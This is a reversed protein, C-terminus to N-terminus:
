EFPIIIEISFIYLESDIPECSIQTEGNYHSVAEKISLLGFGHNKKDSKTTSIVNNDSITLKQCHNSESIIFYNDTRAFKFKIERKGPPMLTAAEIANDLINGVIACTDVASMGTYTFQGEIMLSCGAEAAKNTKDFLIVDAITNGNHAGTDAAQVSDNIESLYTTMRAYDQNELLLALVSLNNKMDHRIKRIENNSKEVAEYYQSQAKLYNTNTDIMEKYYKNESKQAFIFFAIIIAAFYLSMNLLMFFIISETSDPRTFYLAVDLRISNPDTAAVNFTDLVITDFVFLLLGLLAVTGTRIPRNVQKKSIRSLFWVFLLVLLSPLIDILANLLANNITNDFYDPIYFFRTKINAVISIAFFAVIGRKWVRGETRLVLILWGLIMYLLLIFEGIHANESVNQQKEWFYSISMCGACVVSLLSFAIYTVKTNRIKWHLVNNVFLISSIGAAFVEAFYVIFVLLIDTILSSM